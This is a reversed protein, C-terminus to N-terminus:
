SENVIENFTVPRITNNEKILELLTELLTFAKGNMCQHHLMVGCCGSALATEIEILLANFALEGNIEKRTHLDVNVSIDPLYPPTKQKANKSRSVAKFGQRALANLAGESCRNWPPTFFPQLKNGLLGKLRNNGLRIQEDLIQAPRASGFEQKKGEKEFNRHMRGHQHWCWLNSDGTTKLLVETRTETFWAPVAALCLPISYKQFLKILRTFNNSPVGIDDARFFVFPSRPERCGRAIARQIQSYSFYVSDTYLVSIKAVTNLSRLGNKWYPAVTKRM